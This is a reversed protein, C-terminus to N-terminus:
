ILFIAFTNGNQPFIQSLQSRLEFQMKKHKYTHFKSLNLDPYFKQVSQMIEQMSAFILFIRPIKV